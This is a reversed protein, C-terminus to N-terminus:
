QSCTDDLLKIHYGAWCHGSKTCKGHVLKSRTVMMNCVMPTTIPSIGWNSLEGCGGQYIYDLGHLRCAGFHTCIGEEHDHEYISFSCEILHKSKNQDAKEKFSRQIMKLASVIKRQNDSNYDNIEVPNKISQVYQISDVTAMGLLSCIFLFLM